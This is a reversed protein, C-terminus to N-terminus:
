RSAGTAPHGIAAGGPAEDGNRIATGRVTSPRPEATPAPGAGQTLAYIASPPLCLPKSPYGACAYHTSGGACGTLATAVGAILALPGPWSRLARIM